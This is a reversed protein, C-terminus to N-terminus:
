IELLIRNASDLTENDFEKLYTMTIHVDSHGMLESILEVSTGKQKLITAFSHRAVYSTLNKDVKALAAIEKLKSNYSQLVKKKRYEIQIPTLDDRLLIPFVYKSSRVQSKYYDIIEQAKDIIEINFSGKTKSRVYHIRGNMINSWKLKMMDVFNIGRCYFSFMFYNYADVLHPNESLDIDRIQKFETITLSRKNKQAKLKSIKYFKFPYNEQSIIERTIAKNFVARLERMKFAIGGNENGSERLFVEFKELFTPTVSKFSLNIGAYKILANKTEYFARANGTRGSRLLEDIIEDIFTIINSDQYKHTGIFKKKFESLTFDYNEKEFDEVIQVAKSYLKSLIDNHAKYAVHSKTFREEKFHESKCKLDLHIEKKKRNKTIRLVVSHLGETSSRNHLAFRITTKYM